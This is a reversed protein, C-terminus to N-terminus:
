QRGSSGMAWIRGRQFQRSRAASGAFLLAPSTVGMCTEVEPWSASNNRLPLATRLPVQEEGGGGVGCGTGVVAGAAAEAAESGAAVRPFHLVSQRGFRGLGHSAGQNPMVQKSRPASSAPFGCSAPSLCFATTRPM